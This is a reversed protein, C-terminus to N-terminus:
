CFRLAWFRRPSAPRSVAGDDRPSRGFARGIAMALAHISPPVRGSKPSCTTFRHRAGSLMDPAHLVNEEGIIRHSSLLHPVADMM